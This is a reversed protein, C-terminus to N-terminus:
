ENKSNKPDPIPIYDVKGGAGTNQAPKSNNGFCTTPAGHESFFFTLFILFLVIHVHRRNVPGKKRNLNLNMYQMLIDKAESERAELEAHHLQHEIYYQTAGDVQYAVM